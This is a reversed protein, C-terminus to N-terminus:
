ESMSLHMESLYFLCRDLPTKNNVYIVYMIIYERRIVAQIIPM